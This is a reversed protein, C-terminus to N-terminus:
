QLRCDGAAECVPCDLPHNSLLLEIVFKRLKMIKETRTHVVMGDGCKLACSPMPARGGEVEVLCLRCAGFPELRPDHCLTPIDIGVSRAAELVTTGPDVTVEQGDITLTLTKM